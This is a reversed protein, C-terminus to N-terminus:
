ANSLNPMIWFKNLQCVELLSLSRVPQYRLGSFFAYKLFIQMKGVLGIKRFQLKGALGVLFQYNAPKGCAQNKLKCKEGLGSKKDNASKGCAWNKIQLKGVIRIKPCKEWLGSKKNAINGCARNKKNQLKGM